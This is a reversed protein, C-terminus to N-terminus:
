RGYLGTELDAREHYRIAKTIRDIALEDGAQSAKSLRERLAMLPRDQINRLIKYYAEAARKRTLPTLTHNDMDGKLKYLTSGYQYAHWFPNPRPYKRWRKLSSAQELRALRELEEAELQEWDIVQGM